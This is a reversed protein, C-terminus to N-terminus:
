PPGAGADAPGASRELAELVRKRRIQMNLLGKEKREKLRRWLKEMLRHTYYSVGEQHEVLWPILDPDDTTALARIVGLQFNRYPVIITVAGGEQVPIAKEPCMLEPDDVAEFARQLPESAELVKMKELAEVAACRVALSPDERLVRVMFDLLKPERLEGLAWVAAVRTDEHDPAERYIERLREIAPLVLQGCMLALAQPEQRAVPHDVLPRAAERARESDMQGLSILATFTLAPREVAVRAVDPALDDIRLHGAVFVARAAVGEDADALAQRVVAVVAPTVDFDLREVLLNLGQRRLAPDDSRMHVVAVGPHTYRKMFGGSIRDTVALHLAALALFYLGFRVGRGGIAAEIEESDAPEEDRGVAEMEDRLLRRSWGRDFLYDGLGVVTVLSATLGLGMWLALLGFSLGPSACRNDVYDHIRFAAVYFAANALVVSLARRLPTGFLLRRLALM